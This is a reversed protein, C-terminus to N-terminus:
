HAVLVLADMVTPPTAPSAVIDSQLEMAECVTLPLALSKAVVDECTKEVVSPLASSEASVDECAVEVKSFLEAFRSSRPPVRHPQTGGCVIFKSKEAMDLYHLVEYAVALQLEPALKEDSAPDESFVDAVFQPNLVLDVIAHSTPPPVVSPCAPAGPSKLGVGVPSLTPLGFSSFLSCDRGRPACLPWL